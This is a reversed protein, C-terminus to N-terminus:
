STRALRVDGACVQEGNGNIFGVDCAKQDHRDVIEVIPEGDRLHKDGWQMLAIMPAALDVGAMTLVYQDRTRQGPVRYARKTLVGAACLKRLRDALVTRPVGLDSQMADFRTVGYLAERVILLTWRDGLLRAAQAMGCDQLDVNPAGSKEPAATVEQPNTDDYAMPLKALTIQVSKCLSRLQLELLAFLGKNRSRVRNHPCDCKRGIEAEPKKYKPGM